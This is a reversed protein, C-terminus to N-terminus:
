AGWAPKPYLVRTSGAASTPIVQVFNSGQWQFVYATQSFNQGVSNFTVPGQASQLKAGGHLYNILKTNDLSGTAQVAQALVEGVSYGEVVDSNIDSPSGGYRAIYARVMQQSRPIQAGPYWPNPVMVGNANGAGVAKTFADGQDPGGTAIFAKPDYHRQAFANIFASVTPVDVSGLVVAEAGSAAVASAIPTYDTVEAPFTNAYVTKIGAAEMIKQAPPIEPQTFPDNSTPYAATAPRQGPPLSAVWRAFPLLNGVVPLSVDFYNHLGASFAAPGGGAGVILAYGYRHAVKQAPVSLLTSFPGITLDVHDVNILKQYNTTVQSPSSGDSVIDLKVKRGLLGGHANQYSAWLEYGRQFAQGDASFDGSLSLSAGVLVPGNSGSSGGCAGLALVAAVLAAAAQGVRVRGQKGTNM